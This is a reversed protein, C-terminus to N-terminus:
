SSPRPPTLRRRAVSTDVEPIEREVLEVTDTLFSAIESVSARRDQTSLISAVREAARPPAIAMGELAEATRRPWMSSVYLRNLAGIVVLAKKLAEVTLDAFLLLDRREAAKTVQTLWPFTLHHEILRRRLDDPFASLRARVTEYDGDGHLVVQRLLGDLQFLNEGTFEGRDFVAELVNEWAAGYRSHLIEAVVGDIEYLEAVWDPSTAFRFRSALAPLRPERLWNEDVQERWHVGLDLDSREDADGTAASGTLTVMRVAPNAAFM